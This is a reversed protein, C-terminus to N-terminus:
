YKDNGWDSPICTIQGLSNFKCHVRMKLDIMSTKNRDTSRYIMIMAKEEPIEQFKYNRVM